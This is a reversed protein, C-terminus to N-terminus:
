VIQSFNTIPYILRMQSCLPHRKIQRDQEDKKPLNKAINNKSM